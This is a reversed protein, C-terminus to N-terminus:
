LRFILMESEFVMLIHCLSFKRVKTRGKDLCLSTTAADSFTFPVEYAELLSPVQAERALGFMGEAINLALDWSTHNGNALHSVLAKLGDIRIVHHGLAELSVIIGKISHDSESPLLGISHWSSKDDYILAINLPSITM